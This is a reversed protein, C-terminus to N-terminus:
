TIGFMKIKKMRDDSPKGFINMNYNHVPQFKDKQFKTAPKKDKIGKKKFLDDDNPKSSKKKKSNKKASFYDSNPM